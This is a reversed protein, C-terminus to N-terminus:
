LNARLKIEELAEEISDTGTEKMLRNKFRESMFGNYWEAYAYILDPHKKSLNEVVDSYDINRDVIRNINSAQAIEAFVAETEMPNSGSYGTIKIGWRKLLTKMEEKTPSDPAETETALAIRYWAKGVVERFALDPHTEPNYYTEYDPGDSEPVYGTVDGGVDFGDPNHEVYVEENKRDLTKLSYGGHDVDEVEKVRLYQTTEEFDDRVRLYDGIEPSVDGPEVDQYNVSEARGNLGSELRGLVDDSWTDFIEERPADEPGILNEYAPGYSYEADPDGTKPGKELFKYTLIDEKLVQEAKENLYGDKPFHNNVMQSGHEMEHRIISRVKSDPVSGIDDENLGLYSSPLNEYNDNLAGFRGSVGRGGDSSDGSVNKITQINYAVRKIERSDQSNLRSLEANLLEETKDKQLDSTDYRDIISEFELGDDRYESEESAAVISSDSPLGELVNAHDDENRLVPRLSDSEDEFFDTVTYTDVLGDRHVAVKQGVYGFSEFNYDLGDVGFLHDTPEFGEIAVYDIERGDPLEM